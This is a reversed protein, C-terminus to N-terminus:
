PKATHDYQYGHIHLWHEIGWLLLLFIILTVIAPIYKRM